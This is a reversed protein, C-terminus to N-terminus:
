PFSVRPLSTGSVPSVVLPVTVTVAILADVVNVVFLTVGPVVTADPVGTVIVTVSVFVPFEVIVLTDTVPVPQEGNVPPLVVSAAPVAVSKLQV